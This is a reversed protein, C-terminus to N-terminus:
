QFSKEARLEFHSPVLIQDEWSHFASLFRHTISRHLGNYSRPSLSVLGLGTGKMLLGLVISSPLGDHELCLRTISRLMGNHDSSSFYPWLLKDNSVIFCFWFKDTSDMDNKVLTFSWTRFLCLRDEIFTVSFPSFCKTIHHINMDTGNSEATNM